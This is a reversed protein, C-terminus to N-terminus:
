MSAVGATIGGVIASVVPHALFAGLLSKAEEKQEESADAKEIRELMENVALQFSMLNHNGVQIGSSGHINVITGAAAKERSIETTKRIECTWHAEISGFAENFQASLVEYSEERGNPLVRLVLDGEEIDLTSDIVILKRGSLVAGTEQSVSGDRKKLRITANNMDRM